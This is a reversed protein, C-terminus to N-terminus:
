LAMLSIRFCSQDPDRLCVVSLIVNRTSQLSIRSICMYFRLVYGNNCDKNNELQDKIMGVMIDDSVLGGAEMIKKAEVGLATKKTVQDRLMDGTAIHCVCFQDRIKPAQTGKGTVCSM